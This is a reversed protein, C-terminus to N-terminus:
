SPAFATGNWVYSTMSGFPSAAIENWKYLSSLEDGLRTQGTVLGAVSTFKSWATDTGSAPQPPPSAPYFGADALIPNLFVLRAANLPVPQIAGTDSAVLADYNAPDLPTSATGISNAAVQFPGTSGSPRALVLPDTSPQVLATSWALYLVRGLYVMPDLAVTSNLVVTPLAAPAAFLPLYCGAAHLSKTANSFGYVFDSRIPVVTPL